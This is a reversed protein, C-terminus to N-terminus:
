VGADLYLVETLGGGGGMGHALSILKFSGALPATAPYYVVADQNSGGVFGGVEILKHNVAYTVNSADAFQLVAAVLFCLKM